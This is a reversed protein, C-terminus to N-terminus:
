AKLGQLRRIHRLDYLLPIGVEDVYFLFDEKLHDEGSIVHIDLREKVKSAGSYRAHDLALRGLFDSLCKVDHIIERWLFLGLHAFLVLPALLSLSFEASDGEIM